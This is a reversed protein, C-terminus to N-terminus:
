TLQLEHVAYWTGIVACEISYKVFVIYMYWYWKRPRKSGWRSLKRRSLRGLASQADAVARSSKMRQAVVKLSDASLTGHPSIDIGRTALSFMSWKCLPKVGFLCSVIMVLFGMDMRLTAM